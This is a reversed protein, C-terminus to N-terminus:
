RWPRRLNGKRFLTSGLNALAQIANDNPGSSKEYIKLAGRQYQLAGELDGRKSLITGLLSLIEASDPHDYGLGREQIDLARRLPEFAGDLDGQAFLIQGVLAHYQVTELHEPGYVQQQLALAQRANDLAANLDGKDYPAQALKFSSAAEEAERGDEQALVSSFCLLVL